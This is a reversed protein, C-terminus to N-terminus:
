DYGGFMLLLIDSDTANMMGHLGGPKLLSFEGARLTRLEFCRERRAFQYWDGTVMVAQGELLFFIEQNDRHRHLGIGCNNKLIHLDVYDVSLFKESREGGAKRGTADFQWPEVLRGLEGSDAFAFYNSLLNRYHLTGLGGHPNASIGAKLYSNWGRIVMGFEYHYNAGDKSDWHQATEDAWAVEIRLPLIPHMACDPSVSRIDVDDKGERDFDSKAGRILDPRVVLEGRELSALARGNGDAQFVARLDVGSDGWLEIEYRDTAENYPVTILAGADQANVKLFLRIAPGPVGGIAEALKSDPGARYSLKLFPVTKEPLPEMADLDKWAKPTVWGRLLYTDTVQFDRVNQKQFDTKNDQAVPDLINSDAGQPGAFDLHGFPFLSHLEDTLYFHREAALRQTEAVSLLKSLPNRSNYDPAQGPAIKLVTDSRVISPM